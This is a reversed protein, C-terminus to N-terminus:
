YLSVIPSSDLKRFIVFCPLIQLDLVCLVSQSLLLSLKTEQSSPFTKAFCGNELIGSTYNAFATYEERVEYLCPPYSRFRVLLGVALFLETYKIYINYLKIFVCLPHCLILHNSPMVSKISMLKLSSQSNTISLSAQYAATWPTAFFRVQSLSQVSSFQVSLCGCDMELESPFTCSVKPRM